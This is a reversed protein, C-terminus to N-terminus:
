FPLDQSAEFTFFIANEKIAAKHSVSYGDTTEKDEKDIYLFTVELNENRTLDIKKITCSLHNKHLMGNTQMKELNMRWRPLYDLPVRIVDGVKFDTEPFLGMFAKFLQSMALADKGMYLMIIKSIKDAHVHDISKILMLELDKDEIEVNFM